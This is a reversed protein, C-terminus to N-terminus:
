HRQSEWDSNWDSYMVSRSPQNFDPSPQQNRWFNPNVKDPDFGPAYPGPTYHKQMEQIVNETTKNVTIKFSAVEVGAVLFLTVVIWALPNKKLEEWDM